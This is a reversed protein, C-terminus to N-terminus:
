RGCGEVAAGMYQNALPTQAVSVLKSWFFARISPLQATPPEALRTQVALTGTSHPRLLSISPRQRRSKNYLTWSSLAIGFLLFASTGLM